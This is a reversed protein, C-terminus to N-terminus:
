LRVRIPMCQANNEQAITLGANACSSSNPDTDKTNPNQWILVMDIFGAGNTVQVDGGPLQARASQRAWVIDFAALQAPSCTDRLCNKAANAISNNPRYVYPDGTTYSARGAPNTRASSALGNGIQAAIGRYFATKSYQMANAQLALMSLFGLTMLSIAVLVELLSFGQTRNKTKTKRMTMNTNTYTPCNIM